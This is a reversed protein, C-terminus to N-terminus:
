RILRCSEPQFRGGSTIRAKPACQWYAVDARSTLVASRGRADAVIRDAIEVIRGDAIAIDALAEKDETLRAQRLLLDLAMAPM